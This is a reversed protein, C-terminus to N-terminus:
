RHRLARALDAVYPEQIAHDVERPDGRAPLLVIELGGRAVGEWGRQNTVAGICILVARDDRTQPRYRAAALELMGPADLLWVPPTM